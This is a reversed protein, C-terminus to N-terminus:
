HIWSNLSSCITAYVLSWTISNNDELFQLKDQRKEDDYYILQVNGYVVSAMIVIVVYKIWKPIPNVLLITFIGITFLIDLGHDFMNGFRTSSCERAVSGDLMDLYLRLVMLIYGLLYMRKHLCVLVLGSVFVNCFTVLNALQHDLIPLTTSLQNWISSECMATAWKETYPYGYISDFGSTVRTM